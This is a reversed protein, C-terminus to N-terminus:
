SPHAHAYGCQRAIIDLMRERRAWREGAVDRDCLAFRIRAGPRLQAFLHLDARIVRAIVPYGGSTNGDCLQVMPLGSPPLQVVGPLIGHSLMERCADARLAPGDLRCGLRNSQPSVSWTSAVFAERAAAGIEDWQAAPLVHITPVDAHLAEHPDLRYTSLGFGRGDGPPSEAVGIALVDGARLARGEHGGFGGKLDTARSGMVLPVDIGGRVAVYSRVGARPLGMRLVQGARARCRWWNPLRRGDLTAGADAGGIAVDADRGFRIAVNGLTVELGAAEAPNGVMLNAITLAIADMAGSTGVGIHRLGHRGLDQVSTLFGPRLVEIM